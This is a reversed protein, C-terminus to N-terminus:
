SGTELAQSLNQAPRRSALAVGGLILALGAVAAATVTEDLLWAGYFLSIPPILYSVLAARGAGIGAVLAYYIVFALATGLVGLAAVALVARLGPMEAPLSALAVPFTLVTAMACAIFSLTLPTVGAYRRKAFMSALAYCASAGIIAVAGLFEAVSDVAEVGVLLAIGALGVVMGAAAAPGVKESHDYAPALMAVFIPSPAILVATLGSPVELEGYTILLFPLAIHTFGQAVAIRPRTRIERVAAHAQGRLRLWVWLVATALACRSWVVVGPELDELAYKILLYSAGWDAALAALLGVYRAPV